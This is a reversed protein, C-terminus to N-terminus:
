DYLGNLDTAAGNYMNTRPENGMLEIKLMKNKM